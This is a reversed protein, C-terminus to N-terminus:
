WRINDDLVLNQFKQDMRHFDSIDVIFPLPSEAFHENLGGIKVLDLPQGGDIAIDLDSYKKATGKTRSGFVYFKAGPFYANLAKLILQKEDNSIDVDKKM